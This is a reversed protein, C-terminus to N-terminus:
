QSPQHSSVFALFSATRLSHSRTTKRVRSNVGTKFLLISTLLRNKHWSWKSASNMASRLYRTMKIACSISLIITLRTEFENFILPMYILCEYQLNLLRTFVTRNRQLYLDSFVPATGVSFRGTLLWSVFDLLVCWTRTRCCLPGEDSLRAEGEGGTAFLFRKIFECSIQFFNWKVRPRYCCEVIGFDPNYKTVALMRYWFLDQNYIRNKKVHKWNSIHYKVQWEGGGGARM